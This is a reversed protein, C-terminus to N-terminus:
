KNANKGFGDSVSVRIEGNYKFNEVGFADFNFLSKGISSIPRYNVYQAM